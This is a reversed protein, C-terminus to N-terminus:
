KKKRRRKKKKAAGNAGNSPGDQSVDEDDGNAAEFEGSDEPAAAQAVIADIEVASMTMTRKGDDVIPADEVTDVEPPPEVADMIQTRGGDGEGAPHPPPEPPAPSAALNRDWWARSAADVIARVGMGPARDSGGIQEHVRAVIAKITQGGEIAIEISAGVPMPMPVEVYAGDATFDRIRLRRGVELGRYMVDVFADSM